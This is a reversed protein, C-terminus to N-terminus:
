QPQGPQIKPPNKQWAAIAPAVVVEIATKQQLPSLNTLPGAWFLSVFVMAVVALLAVGIIIFFLAKSQKM